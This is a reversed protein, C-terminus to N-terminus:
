VARSFAFNWKALEVQACGIPTHERPIAGRTEQAAIGRFAVKFALAYRAVM